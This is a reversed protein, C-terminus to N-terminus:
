QKLLDILYGDIKGDRPLGNAAQFVKIANITYVDLKGNVDLDYGKDKLKQQVARITAVDPAGIAPSSAAADPVPAPEPATSDPEAPTEDASPPPGLPMPPALPAEAAPPATPVNPATPAPKGAFVAPKGYTLHDLTQKLAGIGSADQPLGADAQYALIAQHTLSDMKGTPTGCRYGHMPLRQQLAFVYARLTTEVYRGPPTGPPHDLAYSPGHLASEPVTEGPQQAQAALAWATGALVLLAAQRM